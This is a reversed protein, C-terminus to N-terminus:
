SSEESGTPQTLHGDPNANVLVAEPNVYRKFEPHGPEAYTLTENNLEGPWAAVLRRNRALCQLLRLADLQLEPSFLIEINDLLVVDSDHQRLHEHMLPDAKLARQTITLDILAESLFLNVNVLPWGHSSAIERLAATKGSRHRGVVLILRHYLADAKGLHDAIRQALPGLEVSSPPIGTRSAPRIASGRNANSKGSM